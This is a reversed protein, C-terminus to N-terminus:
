PRGGMLSRYVELNGGTMAAVSFERAVLARANEVLKARLPADELARRLNTALAADDGANCSLGTVGDKVMEPIGGVNTTVLACGAHTGDLLITGLGEYNSPVALVDLAGLVAPVDEVFGLFSVHHELGLDIRQRELPDRLNGDGAIVGHFPVGQDKLRKCARLLVDHGKQETLASANGLLPLGVPLGLAQSLASRAAHRDVQAFAGPDTASKVVSVRAADIGSRVLVGKIFDSIAVYRAVRPTRYKWRNILDNGPPYDVRRHVVLRTQPAFLQIMLGLTHAHSTHADMVDIAHTRCYKALQRAVSVDVSSRPSVAVLPALGALKQEAPAGARVAVHNEINSDRSGVLLLRLQNEGGRWTRETDIHLVRV